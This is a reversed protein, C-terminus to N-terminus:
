SYPVPPVPSFDEQGLNKAMSERSMGLRKAFERRSDEISDSSWIICQASIPAM